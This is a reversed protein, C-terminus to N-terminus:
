GRRVAPRVPGALWCPAQSGAPAGLGCWAWGRTAGCRYGRNSARPPVRYVHVAPKVCLVAEYDEEMAALVVSPRRRRETGLAARVRLAGGRLRV